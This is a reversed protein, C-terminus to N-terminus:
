FKYFKTYEQTNSDRVELTAPESLMKIHILYFIQIISTQIVSYARYLSELTEFSDLIKNSCLKPLVEQIQTIKKSRIEEGGIKKGQERGLKREGEGRRSRRRRKRRKRRRM